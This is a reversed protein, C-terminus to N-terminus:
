LLAIIITRVGERRSQRSDILISYMNQKIMTEFFPVTHREAGELDGTIYNIRLSNFRYKVTKKIM